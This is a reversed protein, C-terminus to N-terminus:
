GLARRRRQRSVIGGVANIREAFIDSTVVCGDACNCELAVRRIVVVGRDSKFSHQTILYVKIRCTGIVRGETVARQGTVVPVLLV